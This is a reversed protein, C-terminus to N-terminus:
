AGQFVGKWASHGKERIVCRACFGHPQAATSASGPSGARTGEGEGRVTLRQRGRPSLRWPGRQQGCTVSFSSFSSSPVLREHPQRAVGISGQSAGSAAALARAAGESSPRLEPPLPREPGTPRRVAEQLVARRFSLPAGPWVSGEPQRPSTPTREAIGRRRDQPLHGHAGIRGRAAASTARPQPLM